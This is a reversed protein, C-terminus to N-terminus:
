REAEKAPRIGAGDIGEDIMGSIKQQEVLIKDMKDGHVKALHYVSLPLLMICFLVYMFVLAIILDAFVKKM